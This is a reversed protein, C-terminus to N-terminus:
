RNRLELNGAGININITLMPGDGDLRYDNGSKIWDGHMDVNALGRDVFLQASLGGPVVLVVNSLGSDITVDADHQLVGSFELRYDGVGGKFIMRDFNANALGTLRVQSAGTEYRLTDMEVLNPESFNLRVDSAGDAIKLDRIALGGLEYRGQYAGANIELEMEASGLGLNWENVYQDDFRPIANIELDGTRISVDDGFRDIIPMLDQVNYTASGSVLANEAGATINLEGAGFSVEIKAIAEPEDLLPVFIDDTVTPGTKLETVPFNINIGCAMTVLALVIFVYFIRNRIM